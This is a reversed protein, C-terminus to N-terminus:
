CLMWNNGYFFKLMFQYGSCVVNIELSVPKMLTNQQISDM